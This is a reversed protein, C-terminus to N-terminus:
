PLGGTSVCHALSGRLCDGVNLADVTCMTGELAASSDQVRHRKTFFGLSGLSGSAEEAAFSEILESAQELEGPSVLAIPYPLFVTSSPPLLEHM